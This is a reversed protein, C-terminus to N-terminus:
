TNHYYVMLAGSIHGVTVEKVFKYNAEEFFRRFKGSTAYVAVGKSGGHEELVINVAVILYQWFGHHQHLPHIAIFALYEVSLYTGRRIDLNSEAAIADSM